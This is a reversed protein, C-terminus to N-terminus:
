YNIMEEYRISGTSNGKLLIDLAILQEEADNKTLIKPLSITTDNSLM